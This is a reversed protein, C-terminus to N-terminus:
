GWFRAPPASCGPFGGAVPTVAVVPHSDSSPLVTRSITTPAFFLSSSMVSGDRDTVTAPTGAGIPTAGPGAATHGGGIGLSGTVGFVVVPPAGTAAYLSNPTVLAAVAPKSQVRPTATATPEDQGITSAGAAALVGGALVATIITKM